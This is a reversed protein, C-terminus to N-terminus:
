HLGVPTPSPVLHVGPGILTLSLGIPRHKGDTTEVEQWPDRHIRENVCM